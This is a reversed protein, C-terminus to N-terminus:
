FIKLLYILNGEAQRRLRTHKGDFDDFSQSIRIDIPYDLDSEARKTTSTEIPKRTARIHHHTCRMSTTRILGNNNKFDSIKAHFNRKANDIKHLSCNLRGIFRDIPNEHQSAVRRCESTFLGSSAAIMSFVILLVLPTFLERIM